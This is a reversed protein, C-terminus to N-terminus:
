AGMKLGARTLTPAIGLSIGRLYPFFMGSVANIGSNIAAPAPV